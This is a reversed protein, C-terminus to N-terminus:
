IYSYKFRFYWMRYIIRNNAWSFIPNGTLQAVIGGVKKRKKHM